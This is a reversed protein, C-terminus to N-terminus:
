GDERASAAKAARQRARKEFMRRYRRCLREMRRVDMRKWLPLLIRWLLPPAGPGVATAFDLLAVTGDTRFIVDHRGFDGHAYGAAHLEAVAARFADIQAPSLGSWRHDFLHKGDAWEASFSDRGAEVFRPVCRLAPMTRRMERERRFLWRAIWGGGECRKIACDVGGCPGRYVRSKTANRGGGVPAGDPPAPHPPSAGATSM